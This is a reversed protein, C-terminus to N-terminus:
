RVGKQTMCVWACGSACVDGMSKWSRGDRGGSNGGGGGGLVQQCGSAACAQEGAGEIHSGPFSHRNSRLTSCGPCLRVHWQFSLGHFAIEVGGLMMTM